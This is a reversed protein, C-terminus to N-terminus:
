EYRSVIYKKSSTVTVINSAEGGVKFEAEEGAPVHINFGNVNFVGDVTDRNYIGIADVFNSFTLKGNVEDAETFQQVLRTGLLSVDTVPTGRHDRAATYIKRGSTDSTENLFTM